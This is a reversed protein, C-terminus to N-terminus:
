QILVTALRPNESILVSRVEEVTISYEKALDDVVKRWYELDRENAGDAQNLGKMKSLQTAAAQQSHVELEVLEFPQELLPDVKRMVKIKKVLHGLKKKRIDTVIGGDDPLLDTIDARMQSVLTGVIEAPKLNAAEELRANIRDQFDPEGVIRSVRTRSMSLERAIQEQTKGEIVGDVVKSRRINAKIQARKHGKTGKEEKGRAMVGGGFIM